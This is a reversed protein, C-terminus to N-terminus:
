SIIDRVMVNVNEEEKQLMFSLLVFVIDTVQVYDLIERFMSESCHRIPHSHTGSNWQPTCYLAVMKLINGQKVQKSHLVANQPRM